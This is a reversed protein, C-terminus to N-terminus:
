SKEKAAPFLKLKLAYSYLSQVIALAQRPPLDPQYRARGAARLIEMFAPDNVDWRERAARDLEEDSAHSSIGLRRTMWFRLRQYYTDVCVSAAHAQQYLGGLTEVFELPALRADRALPRLPGSRRSFTLLAALALVVSEAILAAILPHRRGPAGHDGYGHVYEDFLVHSQQRDGIVALLFELNGPQSIGANTFPTASALWIADGQGYLYRVAATEDHNGYLAIASTGLWRAVPALTIKPAARTIPSPVLASFEYWAKKQLPNWESLDEPLFSGGGTGTTVVRGGSLIFSALAAKESANPIMEPDAIFLVTHKGSPLARYFGQWREVHYGAEKLLLYAAKAGRSGPSYTTAAATQTDTPAVLVGTVALIVFASTALVLLRRDASSMAKPM